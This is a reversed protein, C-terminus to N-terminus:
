QRVPHPLLVVLETEGEEGAFNRGRLTLRGHQALRVPIQEGIGHRCGLPIRMAGVKLSAVGKVAQDHTDDIRMAADDGRIVADAAFRYEISSSAEEAVAAGSLINGVALPSLFRQGVASAFEGGDVGAKFVLDSAALLQLAIEEHRDLIFQGLDAKLQM